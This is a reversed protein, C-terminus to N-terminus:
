VEKLKMQGDTYIKCFNTESWRKIIKDGQPRNIKNIAIETGVRLIVMKM